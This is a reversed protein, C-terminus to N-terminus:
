LAAPFHEKLTRHSGQLALIEVTPKDLKRYYTCDLFMLTMIFWENDNASRVAKVKHFGTCTLSHLRQM